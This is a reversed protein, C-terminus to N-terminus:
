SEGDEVGMSEAKIIFERLAELNKKKEGKSNYTVKQKEIVASRSLEAMEGNWGMTILIDGNAMIQFELGCIRLKTDDIKM